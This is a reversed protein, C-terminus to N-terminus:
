VFVTGPFPKLHPARDFTTTNVKWKVTAAFFFFILVRVAPDEHPPDHSAVCGIAVCPLM